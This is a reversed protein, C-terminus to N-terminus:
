ELRVSNGYRVSKIDFSGQSEWGSSPRLQTLITTEQTNIGPACVRARVDLKPVGPPPSSPARTSVCKAPVGQREPWHERVQINEPLKWWRVTGLWRDPSVVEQLSFSFKHIGGLPSIPQGRRGGVSVCGLNDACRSCLIPIEYLYYYQPRKLHM